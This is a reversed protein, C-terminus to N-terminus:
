SMYQVRKKKQRQIFSIWYFLELFGLQVMCFICIKREIYMWSYQHICEKHLSVICQMRELLEICTKKRIKESFLITDRLVSHQAFPLIETSVSQGINVIQHHRCRNVIEPLIDYCRSPWIIKFYRSGTSKQSEGWLLSQLIRRMPPM